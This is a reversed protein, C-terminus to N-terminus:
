SNKLGYLTITGNTSSVSANVSIFIRIGTLANTNGYYFGNFLSSAPTALTSPDVRVSSGFIPKYESTSNVNTLYLYFSVLNSTASGGGGLQLSIRGRAAGPGDLTTGMYNIYDTTQVTSGTRVRYDVEMSYNQADFWRLNRGVLLYNDYSSTFLDFFDFTTTTGSISLQSLFVMAGTAPTAWAPVGGSVSLVQGSSGIGLKGLTNTASAYIVDGTTYTTINTGGSSIGVPTTLGSIAPTTIGSTGDITVPM